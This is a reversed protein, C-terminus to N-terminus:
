PCAGGFGVFAECGPLRGGRAVARIAAAVLEPQSAQIHHGSRPALVHVSNESLGASAAQTSTWSESRDRAAELVVLPMDDRPLAGTGVADVLVIGLVDDPYADAYEVAHAGGASHGAIVYPRPIGARTLLAHLDEATSRDAGPPRDDSRGLGARDYSCVRHTREVVAQTKRWRGSALGYGAELVAVPRGRGSCRIALRYGGVDVLTRTGDNAIEVPKPAPQPAPPAAPAVGPASDGGGCGALAVVAALTAAARSLSASLAM